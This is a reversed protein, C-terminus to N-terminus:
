ERREDEQDELLLDREGRCAGRVVPEDCPEALQRRPAHEVRAVLLQAGVPEAALLVAVHARERPRELVPHEIEVLDRGQVVGLHARREDRQGPDPRPRGLDVEERGQAAGVGPGDAVDRELLASTARFPELQPRRGVLELLDALGPPGVPRGGCAQEPVQVQATAGNLTSRCSSRPPLGIGNSSNFCRCAAIHPEAGNSRIATVSASICWVITSETSPPGPFRHTSTPQPVPSSANTAAAVPASTTPASREGVSTSVARRWAASRSTSTVNSTPSASASGYSSALKSM